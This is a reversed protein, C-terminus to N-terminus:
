PHSLREEPIGDLVPPPTWHEADSDYAGGRRMACTHCLVIEDTIAYPRDFAPDIAAGCEICDVLYPRDNPEMTM